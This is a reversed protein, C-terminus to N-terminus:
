DRLIISYGAGAPIWEPADITYGDDEFVVSKHQFSMFLHEMTSGTGLAATDAQESVKQFLLM